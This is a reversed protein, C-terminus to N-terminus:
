TYSGGQYASCGYRYYPPWPNWGRLQFEEYAQEIQAGPPWNAARGYRSEMSRGFSTATEFSSDMQFRGAYVGDGSMSTFGGEHSVECQTAGDAYWACAAETQAGCSPVAQLRRVDDAHQARLGAILHMLHQKNARLRRIKTAQLHSSRREAKWRRRFQTVWYHQQAIRASTRDTHTSNGALAIAASAALAYLCILTYAWRRM